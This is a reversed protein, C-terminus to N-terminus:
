SISCVSELAKSDLQTSDNLIHSHCFAPDVSIKSYDLMLLVHPSPWNPTVNLKKLTYQVDYCCCQRRSDEFKASNDELGPRSDVSDGYYILLLKGYPYPKVYVGKYLTYVM